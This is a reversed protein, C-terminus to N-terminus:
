KKFVAQYAEGYSWPLSGFSALLAYNVIQLPSKTVIPLGTFFTTGESVLSFGYSAFISRWEKPSKLSVHDELQFSHWKEKLLKAAIGDPNPTALLLVGGKKLCRYSQDVFREPHYLHEINHFSTICDISLDEFPFNEASNQYISINKCKQRTEIVLRYDLELGMLSKAPIFESLNLLFEGGGCGVDLVTYNEKDSSYYHRLIIDTQKKYTCYIRIQHLKAQLGTRTPRSYPSPKEYNITDKM